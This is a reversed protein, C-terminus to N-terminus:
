PTPGKQYALLARRAREQGRRRANQVAQYTIGLTNAVEVVSKGGALGVLVERQRPTLAKLARKAGRGTLLTRDVTPLTGASRGTARAETATAAGGRARRSRVVEVDDARIKATVYAGAALLGVARCRLGRTFLARQQPDAVRYFCTAILQGLTKPALRLLSMLYPRYGVIGDFRLGSGRPTRRLYFFEFARREEVSISTSLARLTLQNAQDVIAEGECSYRFAAEQLAGAGLRRRLLQRIRHAEERELPHRSLPSYQLGAARCREYAREHQTVVEALLADDDLDALAGRRPNWEPGQGMLARVLERELHTGSGSRGAVEDVLEEFRQQAAEGRVSYARELDRRTLARTELVTEPALYIGLLHAGITRRAKPDRRRELLSNVLTALVSTDPRLHRLALTRGEATISWDEVKLRQRVLTGNVPVDIAITDFRSRSVDRAADCVASSQLCAEDLSLRNRARGLM